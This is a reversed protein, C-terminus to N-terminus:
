INFINSTSLCPQITNDIAKLTSPQPNSGLETSLFENEAWVQATFFVEANKILSRIKARHRQAITSDSIYLCNVHKQISIKLCRYFIQPDLITVIDVVMCLRGIVFFDLHRRKFNKTIHSIM